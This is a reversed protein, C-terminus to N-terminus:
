RALHAMRPPTAELNRAALIAVKAPLRSQATLTIPYRLDAPETSGAAGVARRCWIVQAPRFLGQDRYGRNPDKQKSSPSEDEFTPSGAHVPPSSVELMCAPELSASPASLAGSTDFTNGGIHGSGHSEAARKLIDGPHTQPM